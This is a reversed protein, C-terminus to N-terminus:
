AARARRAPGPRAPGPDALLGDIEGAPVPRSVLYGQVETCGGDRVQRLQEETEVGEATTAMGFSAGLGAIARVIAACDGAGGGGSLGRVFSRDIKIKDFPFSRLYSLSSYGTGFDDMAIRAGARAAPAPHGPGGREGGAARERHDRARAPPGALGSAALASTVAAVLNPSAFQVPSLNVALSLDGPWRAAERCAARLVWEGFSVILGIEEALPVFDAPPVLGRAPHRWRLLAEFGSIRGTALNTQPQYHLELERLALARRLDLELTRRAQARASMGPEFLRFTGRGEAKARYLALDAENLARDPDAAGDGGLTAIGVSAGINVLHGEVLYARGLLDVLREALVAAAGGGGPTRGAPAPALLIAFEDGGLRAVTDTERVASGLRGAVARLLADGVAHGLTDNVAKFRDLDLCLVAASTAATGGGDEPGARRAAAAVAAAAEALRERFLLRNPLGTLPDVRALREARAEADRRATVDELTVAWGGDPGRRAALAAARGGPLELRAASAGDGAAGNGAALLVARCRGLCRRAGGPPLGGAAEARRLLRSVPLGGPDGAAGAALGLLGLFARNCSTVRLRRDLLLLGHPLGDLAATLRALEARPGRRRDPTGPEGGRATRRDRRPRRGARGARREDRNPRAM